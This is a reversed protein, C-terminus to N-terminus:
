MRRLFVSLKTVLLVKFINTRDNRVFGQMTLDKNKIKLFISFWQLTRPPIVPDSEINKFAWELSESSLLTLPPPLFHNFEAYNRFISGFHNEQVNTLDGSHEPRHLQFSSTTMLQFPFPSPLFANAVSFLSRDTKSLNFKLHKNPMSIEPPFNFVLTQLEHTLYSSFFM